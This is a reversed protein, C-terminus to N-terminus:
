NLKWSKDNKITRIQCNTIYSHTLAGGPTWRTNTRDHLLVKESDNQKLSICCLPDISGDVTHTHAHIHATLETLCSYSPSWYSLISLLLEDIVSILLYLYQYYFVTWSGSHRDSQGASQGLGTTLWCMFLPPVLCLGSQCTEMQNAGCIQTRCQSQSTEDPGSTAKILVSGRASQFPMVLQLPILEPGASVGRDSTPPSSSATSPCEAQHPPCHHPACQGAGSPTVTRGVFGVSGSPQGCRCVCTPVPLLTDSYIHNLILVVTYFWISCWLCLSFLCFFWNVESNLFCYFM